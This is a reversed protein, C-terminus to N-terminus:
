PCPGWSNLISILDSFGVTEDGDIDEPCSPCPGWANLVALLDSFGVDGSDDIDEPCEKAPPDFTIVLRPRQSASDWERSAFKKVSHLDVENGILVWGFNGAPDDVWQQVDAIMAPTSPWTYSGTSGVDLSASATDSFDGGDESWFEDDYFTHLWTADGPTSPAGAGGASESTGEGWDALVRHPSVSSTGPQTMVVRLTLSVNTVTSGAPISSVDFALVARRFTGGGMPGVRGAFIGDGMGNSRSGDTTEILTNDRAADLTVEDGRAAPVVHISLIFAAAAPVRSTRSVPLARVFTNKKM